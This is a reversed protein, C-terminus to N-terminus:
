QFYLSTNDKSYKCFYVQNSNLSFFLIRVKTDSHGLKVCENHSLQSNFNPTGIIFVLVKYM